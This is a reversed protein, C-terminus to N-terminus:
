VSFIITKCELITGRSNPKCCEVIADTRKIIGYKVAIFILYNNIFHYLFLVIYFRRNM